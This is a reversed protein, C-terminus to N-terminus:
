VAFCKGEARFCTRKKLIQHLNIKILSLSDRIMNLIKEEIVDNVMENNKMNKKM